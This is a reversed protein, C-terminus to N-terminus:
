GGEKRALKLIVPSGFIGTVGAAQFLKEAASSLGPTKLKRHLVMPLFFETYRGAKRFGHRNFVELLQGERFCTYTRTNGELKKKFSFLLPTIYNISRVEPYDLIVARAAVRTLEALFEEWRAVHPLLRYTLVVEFSQDPYPLDLINGVQFTCSGAAVHSRIREQCADSSGIVTLQYGNQILASATQGHGGGVDLVTARPYPKLMALTADEQVKLFWAGVPGSFRGAYDESSTEIDATEPFSFTTTMM